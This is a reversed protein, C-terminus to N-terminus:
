TNASAIGNHASAITLTELVDQSGNGRDAIVETTAVEVVPQDEIGYAHTEDLDALGDSRDGRLQQIALRINRPHIDSPHAVVECVTVEVGGVRDDPRRDIVIQRREHGRDLTQEVAGGSGDVGVEGLPESSTLWTTPHHHM